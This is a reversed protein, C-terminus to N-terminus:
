IQEIFSNVKDIERGIIARNGDIVIPREILIPNNVLIEIIDDDTLSKNKYNEIWNKEKQRVLEIPSLNLKKLLVILEEKSPPTELYKIIEHDLNKEEVFALCNRSKGCRPNHYIQIM